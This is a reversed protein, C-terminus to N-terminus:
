VQLYIRLEGKAKRSEAVRQRHPQLVPHLVHGLIVTALHHVAAHHGAHGVLVPEHARTLPSLIKTDARTRVGKNPFENHSKPFQCHLDNTIVM